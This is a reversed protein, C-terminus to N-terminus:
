QQSMAFPKTQATRLSTRLFQLLESSSTNASLSCLAPEPTTRQLHELASSGVHISSVNLRLVYV